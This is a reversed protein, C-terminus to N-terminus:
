EFWWSQLIKQNDIIKSNEALSLIKKIPKQRANKNLLEWDLKSTKLM